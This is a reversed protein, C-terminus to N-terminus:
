GGGFAVPGIARVPVSGLSLLRDHFAALDFDKGMRGELKKRLEVIVLKGYTYTFMNAPWVFARRAELRAADPALFAKEELFKAADAMSFSGDNARVDVVVRAARQLAMRIAFARVIDPNKPVYGAELVAMECYHAWGESTTASRFLKRAKSALRRNHLAQLYHGPIAEHVSILELAGRAHFARLSDRRAKPMADDPVNVEFHASALSPELPGAVNMSALSIGRREPPTQVIRLEVQEWPITVFRSTRLWTEVRANLERYEDLLFAPEPSDAGLRAFLKAPAEGKKAIRPLLAALEADLRALESEGMRRVDAASEVVGEKLQALKAWIEPGVPSDSAKEAPFREGVRKVYGDLADAAASSARSLREALPAGGLESAPAKAINSRLNAAVGPAVIALNELAPRTPTRIRKEATALYEPVRELRAALSTFRQPKPAYDHSVISTVAGGITSVVQSPDREPASVSEAVLVRAELQNAVIEADLRPYETGWQQPDANAPVAAALLRLRTAYRRFVELKQAERAGDIEDLEADFRHDGSFTAWVPSASFAYDLAEEVLMRYDKALAASPPASTQVLPAGSTPEIADPTSAPRSCASLLAVLVVVGSSRM